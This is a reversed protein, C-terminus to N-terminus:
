IAGCFSPLDTRRVGCCNWLKQRATYIIFDRDNCPFENVFDNVNCKLQHPNVCHTTSRAEINGTKSDLMCQWKSVDFNIWM